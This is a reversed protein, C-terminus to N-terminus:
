SNYVTKQLNAVFRTSNTRFTNIGANEALKWHRDIWMNSATIPSVATNRTIAQCLIINDIPTDTYVMTSTVLSFISINTLEQCLYVIDEVELDKYDIVPRLIVNNDDCIKKCIQLEEMIEGFQNNVILSQNIILEISSVGLKACSLVQQQRSKPLQVGFPYDVAVGIKSMDLQHAHKLLYPYIILQDVLSDYGIKFFKNLYEEELSSNRFQLELLM